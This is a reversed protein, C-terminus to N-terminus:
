EAFQREPVLEIRNGQDGINLSGQQGYIVFGPSTATVTSSVIM